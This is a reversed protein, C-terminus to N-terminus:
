KDSHNSGSGTLTSLGWRLVVASLAVFAGAAASLVVVIVMTGIGMLLAGLNVTPSVVSALPPITEILDVMALDAQKM